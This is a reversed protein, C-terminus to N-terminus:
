VTPSPPARGHYTLRHESAEIVMPPPFPLIELPGLEPLTMTVVPPPTIRAALHCLACNQRDKPTPTGRDGHQKDQCCDCGMSSEAKGSLTIAGRTHGPLVVNLFIAQYVLLFLIGARKRMGQFYHFSSCQEVPIQGSRQNTCFFKVAAVEIRGRSGETSPM